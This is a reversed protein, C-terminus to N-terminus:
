DRTVDHVCGDFALHACSLGFRRQLARWGRPEWRDMRVRCGQEATGGSVTVNPTVDCAIELEAMAAAVEACDRLRGGSVSLTAPM